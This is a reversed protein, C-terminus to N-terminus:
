TLRKNDATFEACASKIRFATEASLEEREIDWIGSSDAIITANKPHLRKEGTERDVFTEAVAVGEPRLVGPEPEPLAITM